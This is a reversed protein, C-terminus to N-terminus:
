SSATRTGYKSFVDFLRSEVERKRKEKDKPSLIPTLNEIRITGNGFPVTKVEREYNAVTNM